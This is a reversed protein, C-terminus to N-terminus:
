YFELYMPLEKMFSLREKGLKNQHWRLTDSEEETIFFDWNGKVIYECHEIIMDVAEAPSPGKGALDGLCIIREIGRSKIDKLVTDLATINGHIDSIIAIRDMTEATYYIM